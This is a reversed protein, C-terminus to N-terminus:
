EGDDRDSDLRIGFVCLLAFIVAGLISGALLYVSKDISRRVVLHDSETVYAELYPSIGKTVRGLTEVQDALDRVIQSAPDTGALLEAMLADRAEELEPDVRIRRYIQKVFVKAWSSALAEARQSDIDQAVMIWEGDGPEGLHLKETRLETLSVGGVQDAVKKLTVDAYAVRKLKSVERGLFFFLKRDPFYQWTDELNFDVVVVAQAYYPPPSLAYVGGAAFAGLIAGVLWL